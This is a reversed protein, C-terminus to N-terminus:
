KLLQPAAAPCHGTALTFCNHGLLTCTPQNSQNGKRGAVYKSNPKRSRQLLLRLLVSSEQKPKQRHIYTYTTNM